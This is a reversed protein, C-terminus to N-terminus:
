KKLVEKVHEAHQERSESSILIVDFNAIAFDVDNFLTDM